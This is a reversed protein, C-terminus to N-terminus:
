SGLRRCRATASQDEIPEEVPPDISVDSIHFLPEGQPINLSAECRAGSADALSIHQHDLEAVLPAGLIDTDVIHAPENQSAM